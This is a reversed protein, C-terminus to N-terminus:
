ASSAGGRARAAVSAPVASARSAMAAQPVHRTASPESVRAPAGIRM